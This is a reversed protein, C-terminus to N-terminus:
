HFRTSEARGTVAVDARPSEKLGRFELLHHSIVDAEAVSLWQWDVGATVSGTCHSNGSSM